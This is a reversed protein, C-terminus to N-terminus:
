ERVKCKTISFEGTVDHLIMLGKQLKKTKVGNFLKTNIAFDTVERKGLKNTLISFLCM